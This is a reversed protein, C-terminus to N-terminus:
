KLCSPSFSHPKLAYAVSINSPRSGSDVDVAGRKGCLQVENPLGPASVSRGLAHSKSCASLLVAAIDLSDPTARSSTRMVGKTANRKITAKTHPSLHFLNALGNPSNVAAQVVGIINKESFIPTHSTLLHRTHTM